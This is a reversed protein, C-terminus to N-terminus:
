GKDRGINITNYIGDYYMCSAVRTNADHMPIETYDSCEMLLGATSSSWGTATGYNANIGGIRLCGSAMFGNNTAYPSGNHIVANNGAVNLRGYLYSAGTISLDSQVNLNGNIYTHGQVSLKFSSNVIGIGVNGTNYHITLQTSSIGSTASGDRFVEKCHWCRQLSQSSSNIPADILILPDTQRDTSRRHRM